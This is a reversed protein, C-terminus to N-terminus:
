NGNVRDQPIQTSPSAAHHNSLSGIPVSIQTTRSHAGASGYVVNLGFVKCRKKTATILSKSPSHSFFCPLFLLATCDWQTPNNMQSIDREVLETGFGNGGCVRELTVRVFACLHNCAVDHIHDALIRAEEERMPPENTDQAQEHPHAKQHWQPSNFQVRQLNKFVTILLSKSNM